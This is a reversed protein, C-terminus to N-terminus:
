GGPSAEGWPEFVVVRTQDTRWGLLYRFVGSPSRQLPWTFTGDDHRQLAEFQPALPDNSETFCVIKGPAKGDFKPQVVIDEHVIRVTATLRPLSTVFQKEEEMTSACAADYAAAVRDFNLSAAQMTDRWFAAGKLGNPADKRAMARLLRAPANRGQTEILVRAFVSGLPYVLYPERKRGLAADDTLEELPVKGRSWAGAVERRNRTRDEDTGFLTLEVHTALGEHLFRTENFHTTARGESLQEIFVHATEHGLIMQLDRFASENTLPIRIKTWTTQGSAHTMVPSALDVVIRTPTDPANLFTAVKAYIGDAAAIVPRAANLQATRFLFEYHKSERKSFAEEGVPSDSDGQRDGASPGALRVLAAIWVVPALWRIGAGIAALWRLRGLRDAAYQVRDGLSLFGLWGAGLLGATAAAASAVHRWSVLVRSGAFAPGILEYPDFLALWDFGRQRLWLYTWLLLGTVLAFWARMFSVLMALALLYAGALIQLASVAGAFAWPFPGDVSTRSLRDFLIDSSIDVLPVLSVVLVGALAKMLFVRTRSLPLGDLFLLTGQESEQMLVGAGTLLCFLALVVLSGSRSSDLWKAPDYRQLDPADTALAYAQGLAFLALICVAYPRLARLEKALLVRNMAAPRHSQAM